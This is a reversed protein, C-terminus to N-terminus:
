RSAEVAALFDQWSTAFDSLFAALARLDGLGRATEWGWHLVVPVWLARRGLRELAPRVEAATGYLPAYAPLWVADGRSAPPRAFGHEPVSNPGGCVVDYREALVPWQARDFRDFPAVFVRPRDIGRAALAAEGADLREKLAAPSLGALESRRRPHPDRTRHDYGHLALTVGEGGLRSLTAAERDTLARGGRASPDLPQSALSPLAALLYPVKADALVAHFREFADDGYRAPEDAARYHPYEDVRLLVRPAGGAADGLVARRAADQHAAVSREYGILGAKLAVRALARGPRTRRDDRVARRVARVDVAEPRIRGNALEVAFLLRASRREDATV